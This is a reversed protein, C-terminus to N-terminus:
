SAVLFSQSKIIKPVYILAINQNIYLSQGCVDSLYGYPKKLQLFKTENRNITDMKVPIYLGTMQM